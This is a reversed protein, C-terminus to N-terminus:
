YHLNRARHGSSPTWPCHNKEKNHRYEYSYRNYSNYNLSKERM